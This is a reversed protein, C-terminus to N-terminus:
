EASASLESAAKAGLDTSYNVAETFVSLILGGPLEYFTGEKEAKALSVAPHKATLQDATMAVANYSDPVLGTSGVYFALPTVIESFMSDIAADISKQAQNFMALAEDKTAGGTMATEFEHVGAVDFGAEVLCNRVGGHKALGLFAEYVEYTLTDIEDLKTRASLAKVGWTNGDNWWMDLTPKAVEVGDAGKLTFRRQLYANGSYLNGLHLIDPTGIKVKYSFRTDVEGKNLADNLDTYPTTTPPSFYLAPTIYCAKLATIQDATLSESEGKTLGALLKSLVTLCALNHFKRAPITQFSQDYDVLPLDGLKIDYQTNPDFDGTVLGNQKLWAFLRKDSTKIPLIPTNVSGDGVVTYNRFDKLDLKIGAVETVPNGGATEILTGDQIVKINATATDRNIDISAVPVATATRDTQLKHTPPILAGNADRTGAVRKLGRRKYTKALESVNLRLGTKYQNLTQLVTLVSPGTAGLGYEGQFQCTTPEFLFKEVAATWAAIEEAVLAKAHPQILNKIKTSVMAYKAANFNGLAIQARCYTMLADQNHPWDQETSANFDAESVERYRYVTADDDASLGRVTLSSTGGLVKKARKSCFAVFDYNGIGAEIVPAVNGALLAQAGHLADYVQKATQAQICTGSLKNAIAALLAFDCYSRYGVTNVFVQPHKGIADVAKLISQAETFPSPDNAYGDTHLSICTIESDNILKEAQVLGQSIGTCGRTRLNRIETLHKSNPAMVEAVTVREFHIRCDGNSAYTLLSVKLNPDKFEEATFVKEITSKVSDLDSYMSGSVDLIVLHHGVQKPPTLPRGVDESEVLYYRVPKGAFNRLALKSQM